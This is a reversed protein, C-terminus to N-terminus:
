NKDYYRTIFLRLQFDKSYWSILKVFFQSKEKVKKWVNKWKEEKKIILKCAEDAWKEDTDLSVKKNVLNLYTKEVEIDVM